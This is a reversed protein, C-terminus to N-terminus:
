LGWGLRQSLFALAVIVAIAVVGLFTGCTKKQTSESLESWLGCFGWGCECLCSIACWMAILIGIFSIVGYFANSIFEM